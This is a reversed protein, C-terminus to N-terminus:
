EGEGEAYARCGEEFSWSKGGCDNADTIGKREAWEYGANHGGCDVTCGDGAFSGRSGEYNDRRTDYEPYTEGGKEEGEIQSIDPDGGCSALLALSLFLALNRRMTM